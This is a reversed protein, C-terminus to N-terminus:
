RMNWLFKKYTKQVNRSIKRFFGKYSSGRTFYSDFKGTVSGGAAITPHLWYIDIVKEMDIKNIFLDIVTDCGKMDVYNIMNKAYEIDFLYAGAFRIMNPNRYILQGKIRKSRPVYRLMTDELSIVFNKLNRKKIEEIAKFIIENFNKELIIDNEFVVGYPINNKVIDKYALLHKYTCSATGLELGQMLSSRMYGSFFNEIIEKTIDKQEGDLIFDVPMSINEIQEKMHKERVTDDKVHIVYGKINPRTQNDSQM